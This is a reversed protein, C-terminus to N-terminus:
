TARKCGPWSPPAVPGCRAWTRAEPSPAAGRPPWRPPMPWPQGWARAVRASWSIAELRPRDFGIVVQGDIVTVPVGQQGTLRVMEAAGAADQSVDVERFRLGQRALYEKVQHCYPCTPTTYVVIDM